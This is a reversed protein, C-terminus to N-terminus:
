WTFKGSIQMDRPLNAPSSPGKNISGFYVSTPDTNYQGSFNPHNLLNFMDLRAQFRVKEPLKFNKSISADFEHTSGQRVGWYVVNHQLAYQGPNGSGGSGLERILAPTTCGAEIYTPGDVLMTTSVGGVTVNQEYAVCPTVGQLRKYPHTGDAPLDHARVAIPALQIWNTGPNWPVGATFVYLPSIEWGGIVGDVMRNTNGLLAKGRGIPAYFVSSFTIVNPRDNGDITRSYIGNVADIQNGAVMSKSWSYVAHLSVLGSVNHSFAVQMSNYWTHIINAQSETVDTFAPFPRSLAARPITSQSFYSGSFYPNNQFPNPALGQALTQGDCINYSLPNGTRDFDCPATYAASVPNININGAGNYERSGSYSIDLVDRKSLLQELSVSYEWISPIKYNPNTFNVTSGPTTALGLSSGLPQVTGFSNSSTAPYPDALNGLPEFNGNPTGANSSAVYSTSASFGNSSDNSVDTIYMEGFGARLSTRPSFAYAAGFRPQINLLNTSYAGRPAGNVGAFRIGGTIPGGLCTGPGTSPTATCYATPHLAQVQNNILTNADTTDFAYNLKNHREVPAELLDYRVGFNLTLKPTVKWDDQAWVAYYHQSYFPSISYKLGGSSPDGILLSAIGNGSKYGAPDGGSNNNNYFQQTYQNSFSFTNNSLTGPDAVQNLRMDFGARLTHRGRVFTVSPQYALNHAIQYNGPGSVGLDIYGTGTVQPFLQPINEQANQFHQSFGLSPLFSGATGSLLGLKSNLVTVKNDLILNASFTHVEDLAFTLDKPQIQHFAQTGPNSYPIGNANETDYREFGAWRLTARDSPGFNQELKIL